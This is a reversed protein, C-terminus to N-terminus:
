PHKRSPHPRLPSPARVGRTLLRGHHAHRPHHHGHRTRPSSWTWAMSKPLPSPHPSWTRRCCHALAGGPLAQRPKHLTPCPHHLPPAPSPPPPSPPPGRMAHYAQLRLAAVLSLAQRRTSHSSSPPNSPSCSGHGQIGAALNGQPRGQRGRKPACHRPPPPLPLQWHPSAADQRRTHPARARGLAARPITSSLKPMPAELATCTRLHPPAQSSMAPVVHAQPQPSPHGPLPRAQAKQTAAKPRPAPAGRLLPQAQAPM